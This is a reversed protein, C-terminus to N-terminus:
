GQRSFGGLQYCAVRADEVGFSSNCITGWANNLCVEVRGARTMTLPNEDGPVLRLQGNQCDGDPTSPEISTFCLVATLGTYSNSVTHLYIRVKVFLEPLLM